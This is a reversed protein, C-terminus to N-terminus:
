QGTKSNKYAGEIKGLRFHNWATRYTVGRQKAYDSLKM